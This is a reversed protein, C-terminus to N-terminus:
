LGGGGMVKISTCTTWASADSLLYIVAWAIEEPRGYRKLMYKAKDREIDEISLMGNSVLPTEVMGPCVSNVRIKRPAFERASYKMIANVASKSAGYIGNGPLFRRTGGISSVFVVSAEKNLKKKKFLVRLLEVQAFFNIEFVENFKERTAFQLPITVGKGACLVVGDLHQISNVIHNLGDDTTIDALLSTHKDADAMNDLTEQLRKKNRGTIIVSAGMKSCEISTTQGIGSSAGTVLITKGNLSYPNYNTDM